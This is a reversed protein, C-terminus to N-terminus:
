FTKTMSLTAALAASIAFVAEAASKPITDASTSSGQKVNLDRHYKLTEKVEDNSNDYEDSASLDRISDNFQQSAADEVIKTIIASCSLPTIRAVTGLGYGAVEMMGVLISPRVKFDVIIEDLDRPSITVDSRRAKYFESRFVETCHASRVYPAILENNNTSANRVLTRLVLGRHIRRTTSLHLIMTPRSKLAKCVSQTFVTQHPPLM